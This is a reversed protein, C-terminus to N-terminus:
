REESRPTKARAQVSPNDRATVVQHRRAGGSQEDFM